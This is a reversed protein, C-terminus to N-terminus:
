LELLIKMEILKQQRWNAQKLKITNIGGYINGLYFPLTFMGLFTAGLYSKNHVLEITGGILLLNTLFAHLADKSEGAILYGSGPLIAGSIGTLLRSGPAGKKLETVLEAVKEPYRITTDSDLIRSSNNFDGSGVYCLYKWRLLQNAFPHQNSCSLKDIEIQLQQLKLDNLYLEALRKFGHQALDISNPSLAVKQYYSIAKDPDNVQEYLWGLLYDVMAAESSDASSLYYLEKLKVIALEFEKDVIMNIIWPHRFSLPQVESLIKKAAGSEITYNPETARESQPPDYIRDNKVGWYRSYALNPHCRMLRDGTMVLGKVLGYQSLAQRAYQSCSPYFGCQSYNSRIPSAYNQYLTLYLGSSKVLFEYSYAKFSMAILFIIISYFKIKMSYQRNM